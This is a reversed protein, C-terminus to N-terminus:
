AVSRLAANSASFDYSFFILYKKCRISHFDDVMRLFVQLIITVGVVPRVSCRKAAVDGRNNGRYQRKELVTMLLYDRRFSEACYSYEHAVPAPWSISRFHRDFDIDFDIDIDIDLSRFYLFYIPLILKHQFMGKIEATIYQTM